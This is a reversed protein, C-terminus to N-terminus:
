AGLECAARVIARGCRYTTTLGREDANLEIKLRDLAGADAGRFGYIAQRDDGVLCIRGKCIGQAIELQAATMDQAEDVVVLDAWKNLWGNRVPLFIMDSFDIGGVPQKAAALRMADAAFSCIQEITWGLKLWREEPECGFQYALDLLEEGTEAHPLIERGLCHLKTVLKKIVDPVFEVDEPLGAPLVACAWDTLMDKRKVRADKGEVKVSPWYSRVIGYGMSHLTKVEVSYGTFRKVLEDAIKKNFACVVVRHTPHQKLYRMVAEVLTTTKGTGARARVLLHGDEYVLFTFVGDQQNSWIHPNM